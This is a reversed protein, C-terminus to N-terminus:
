VIAGYEFMSVVLGKWSERGIVFKNGSRSAVFKVMSLVDNAEKM